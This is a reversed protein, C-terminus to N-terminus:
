CGLCEETVYFNLSFLNCRTIFLYVGTFSDSLSILPKHGEGEGVVGNLTIELSLSWTLHSEISHQEEDKQLDEKWCDIVPGNEQSM